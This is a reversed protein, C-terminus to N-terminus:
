ARILNQHQIGTTNGFPARMGLEHRHAPPIPHQVIGLVRFAARPHRQAAESLEGICAAARTMALRPSHGTTSHHRWRRSAVLADSNSSTNSTTARSGDYVRKTCANAECQM